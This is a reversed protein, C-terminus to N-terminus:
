SEEEAKAEVAEKAAEEENGMEADAEAKAEEEKPAEEKSDVEMAAAEAKKAAEEKKKLEAQVHSLMGSIRSVRPELRIATLQIPHSVSVLWPLVDADLGEKLSAVNEKVGAVAEKAATLKEEVDSIVEALDDASEKLKSPMPQSAEEVAKVSEEAEAALKEVESIKEKLNAKIEEIEKERKERLRKREADRVHERAIGIQVKVPHFDEKRVGKANGNALRTLIVAAAKDTLTFSLEKKAFTTIDKKDLFGDKNGDYKAFTAQSSELKRKANKRRVTMTKAENVQRNLSDKIRSAEEVKQTLASLKKSLELPPQGPVEAVRMASGYEKLYDHCVQLEQNAKALVEEFGKSLSDVDDASMPMLKEITFAEASEKLTTVATEAETVKLTFDTILREARESAEKLKKALEAKREEEKIKAEKFQKIRLKAQELSSNCEEKVKSTLSGCRILEVRMVQNLESELQAITEEKALRVQQVVKRIAM